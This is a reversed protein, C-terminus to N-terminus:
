RSRRPIELVSVSRKPLRVALTDADFAVPHDTVKAVARSQGPQPADTLRGTLAHL